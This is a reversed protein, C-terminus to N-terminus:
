YISVPTGLPCNTYVFNIEDWGLRICGSSCKTGRGDESVKGPMGTGTQYLLSHLSQSGAGNVIYECLYYHTQYWNGEVATKRVLSWNGLQTKDGKGVGCAWVRSTEWPDQGGHERDFVFTRYNATDVVISYGSNGRSQARRLATNFYSPVNTSLAGGNNAAELHNGRAIYVNRAVYGQNYYGYYSSTTGGNAASFFGTLAGHMGNSLAAIYYRQLSGAYASTVLWGLNWALSGSNDALVVGNAVHSVGRLVYGQDTLGWYNKGDDTFHGTKALAYGSQNVLWYRQVGAGYKDTVSWGDGNARESALRGDNDALYFYGNGASTRGRLIAGTGTAYAYYGAGESPTVLRSVALRADSGVWYRQLSGYANTVTWFGDIKSPDAKAGYWAIGEFRWGLNVLNKNEVENSTFNHAGAKANPNYERLIRVGTVTDSYWGIGEYKWGARVLSDRETESTTYHHDGANPNYLRYVPATSTNPAVWAIGEWRWGANFLFKAEGLSATYFHEGSNPNYLRYMNSTLTTTVVANADAATREAAPAPDDAAAPAESAGEAVQSQGPITEQGSQTTTAGYTVTSAGSDTDGEAPTSSAGGDTVTGTQEPAEGAGASVTAGASSPTGATPTAVESSADTEGAGDQTETQSVTAVQSSEAGTAETQTVTAKSEPSVQDVAEQQVTTQSDPGQAGDVELGRAMTPAVTTATVFGIAAAFGLGAFRAAISKRANEQKFM